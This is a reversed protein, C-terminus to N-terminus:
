KGPAAAAIARAPPPETRVELIDNLPRVAARLAAGREAAVGAFGGDVFGFGGGSPSPARFGTAGISSGPPPPAAAAAVSAAAAPPAAAGPSVGLSTLAATFLSGAGAGAGALAL